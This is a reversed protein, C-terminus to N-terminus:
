KKLQQQDSGRPELFAAPLVHGALYTQYFADSCLKIHIFFYRM